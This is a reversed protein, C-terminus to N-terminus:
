VLVLVSISGRYLLTLFTGLFTCNYETQWEHELEINLERLNCKTIYISKFVTM